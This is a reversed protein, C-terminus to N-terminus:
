MSRLVYRWYSFYFKYVSWSTSFYNTHNANGWDTRQLTTMKIKNHSPKTLDMQLKGDKGNKYKVYTYIRYHTTSIKYTVYTMSGYCHFKTSYVTHTNKDVLTAASAPTALILGTIILIGIILIKQKM